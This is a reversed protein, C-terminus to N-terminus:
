PNREFHEQAEQYDEPRGIDYWFGGHRYVYVPRKKALLELILADFGMPTGPPILALVEPEFLNVGMAATYALRPKETFATMRGDDGAEIVGLNIPVSRAHVAVTAAAKKQRHLAVMAPLNLDTFTDGNVVLFTETLRDRMLGLPGVTSLPKPERLWELRVGEPPNTAFYAEILPALYGVSLTADSIGNARLWGLLHELVPRNGLPVLPKPVVFTFPQLRRGEGGALVVARM